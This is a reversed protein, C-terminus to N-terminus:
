TLKWNMRWQYQRCVALFSPMSLKWNMRWQYGYVRLPKVALRRHSEIWEENIRDAVLLLYPTLHRCKWNMRWQYGQIAEYISSMTSKWNMRWQYQSPLLNIVDVCALKWNMRWQYVMFFLTKPKVLSLGKLENKMSVNGRWPRYQGVSFSEIWEENICVTLNTHIITRLTLKWNM